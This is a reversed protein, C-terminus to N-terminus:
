SMLFVFLSWLIGLLVHTDEPDVGGSDRGKKVYIIKELGDFPFCKYKGVSNFIIKEPGRLVKACSYISRNRYM